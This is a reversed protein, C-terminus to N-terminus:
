EYFKKYYHNVDSIWKKTAIPDDWSCDYGCKWVIMKSPTDFNGNNILDSFRNGVTEIAEAPSNFCTYGSPTIVGTHGRYGWYNYCTQGALMPSHKGLNSEKKAVSILFAATNKERGAIYPLMAEMPTGRLMARAKKMWPSPPAYTMMSNFSMDRSFKTNSDMISLDMVLAVAILGLLVLKRSHLSLQHIKDFQFM